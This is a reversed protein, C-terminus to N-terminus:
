KCCWVGVNSAGSESRPRCAFNPYPHALNNGGADEIAWANGATCV